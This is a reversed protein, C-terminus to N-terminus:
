RTMKPINILKFKDIQHIVKGTNEDSLTVKAYVPTLLSKRNLKLEKLAPYDNTAISKGVEINEISLIKKNTKIPFEEAVSTVIADQIQKNQRVFDLATSIKM